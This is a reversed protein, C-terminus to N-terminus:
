NFTEKTDTTLNAYDSKNKGNILESKNETETKYMYLIALVIWFFPNRLGMHTLSYMFIPMLVYYYEFKNGKIIYIIINLFLVVGIIGYSFLLNALSSHLEGGLFSDFRSNDVEGAGFFLYEPHNLVRDYGRGALNDDSDNGIGVIRNKVNNLFDVESLNDGPLQKFILIIFISIFIAFFIKLVNM